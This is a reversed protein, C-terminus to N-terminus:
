PHPKGHTIPFELVFTAGPGDSEAWMRGKMEAMYNASSHLGFGQGDEKTTFGHYFIKRLNELQIGVGTDKVKIYANNNEIFVSFTLKRKDLPMEAMAEKANTILNVLIHILKTKQILVKQIDKFDKEIAINNEVLSEQQMMLADEIIASLHCNETLSAAGAYSRQSEVVDIIADVKKSLRDIHSKVENTDKEISDELLFYYRILKRGKPDNVLFNEINDLNDRLLKNAKKFNEIFEIKYNKEIFEMSVKVSNLINGINHLTGTAIDAMGAKHANEILEAQAAVLQATREKVLEDLHNYVFSNELSIAAQSLLINLIEIRENTFANKTINNELYLVGTTKDMYRMPICLVSKPHKERVYPDNIFLNTDDENPLVVSKGTTLVYNVIGKSLGKSEEVKISNLIHVENTNTDAAAEILFEDNRNLLVYGKEAGANEMIISIMEELLKKLDIERSIAQSAKTVTSMDLSIGSTKKSTTHITDKIRENATQAIDKAVKRVTALDNVESLGTNRISSTPSVLPLYSGESRSKIIHNYKKELYKVVANAGWLRYTHYAETMYLTAIKEEDLGLWFKATLKLILAEENLFNNEHALKAATKYHDMAKLNQGWVRATEAEVLYFKHKHNSPGHSAW